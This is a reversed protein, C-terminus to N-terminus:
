RPRRRIQAEKLNKHESYIERIIYEYLSCLINKTQTKNERLRRIWALDDDDFVDLCLEFFDSELTKPEGATFLTTSYVNKLWSGGRKLIKEMSTLFAGIRNIFRIMEVQRQLKGNKQIVDMDTVILGVLLNNLIITMCFIFVAVIIRGFVPFEPVSNVDGDYQGIFYILTEFLRLSITGLADVLGESQDQPPLLIFFCLAFSVFQIFYFAAYELFYKTSNFIIMYKTFKPLQGLTMLFVCSSLLIAVVMTHQNQGFINVMSCGIAVIELYNSLDYFYRRWYLLLQIMEKFAQVMLFTIFFGKFAASPRHIQLSLVYCYLSLLFFAYLVLNIYFYKNTRLWKCHVFYILLPHNLLEKKKFDHCLIHLTETESYAKEDDIVFSDCFVLDGDLCNDLHMKLSEYSVRQLRPTNNLNDTLTAGMNLLQCVKENYQDSSQSHDLYLDMIKNLVNRQDEEVNEREFTELKSVLLHVVHKANYNENKFYSEDVQKLQDILHTKTIQNSHHELLVALFPYYGLKVSLQYVNLGLIANKKLITAGNNLLHEVSRGFGQSCFFDLMPSNMLDFDKESHQTTSANKQHYSLYGKILCLELMTFGGDTADM